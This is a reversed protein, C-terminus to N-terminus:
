NEYLKGKGLIQKDNIVNIHALSMRRCGFFIDQKSFCLAETGKNFKAGPLVRQPRWGQGAGNGRGVRERKM